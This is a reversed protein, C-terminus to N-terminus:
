ADYPDSDVYLHSCVQQKKYEEAAEELTKIKPKQAEGDEPNHGNTGNEKVANTVRDDLKEGFVFSVQNARAAINQGFTFGDGANVGLKPPQSSSSALSMNMDSGSAKVERVETNSSEPQPAVPAAEKSASDSTADSKVASSENDNSSAVTPQAEDSNDYSLKAPRLFPNSNTATGVTSSSADGSDLSTTVSSTSSTPAPISAPKLSFKPKALIGGGGTSSFPSFPNSSLNNCNLSTAGSRGGFVNEATSSIQANAKTETSSTPKASQDM